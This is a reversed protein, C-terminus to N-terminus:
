YSQARNLKERPFARCAPLEEAAALLAIGKGGGKRILM